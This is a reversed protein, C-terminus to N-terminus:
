KFFCDAERVNMESQAVVATGVIVVTFVKDLPHYFFGLSFTGFCADKKTVPVVVPGSNVYACQVVGSGIHLIQCVVKFYHEQEQANM